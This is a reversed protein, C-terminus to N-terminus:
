KLSRTAIYGVAARIRDAALYNRSPCGRATTRTAGRAKGHTRSRRDVRLAIAITAAGASLGQTWNECLAFRLRPDFTASLADRVSAADYGLVVTVTEVPAALATAVAAAILPQGRWTALLKGGGFRSGAGAALVLAHYGPLTPRPTPARM